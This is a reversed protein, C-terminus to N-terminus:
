CCALTKETGVPHQSCKPCPLKHGGDRYIRPRIGHELLQEAVRAM